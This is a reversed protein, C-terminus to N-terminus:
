TEFIMVFKFKDMKGKSLSLTQLGSQSNYKGSSDQGSSNTLKQRLKHSSNPDFAANPRSSQCVGHKIAIWHVAVTLDLGPM